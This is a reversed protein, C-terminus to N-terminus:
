NQTLYKKSFMESAEIEETTLSPQLANIQTLSEEHGLNFAAEYCAHAYGRNLEKGRGTEYARGLFDLSLRHKKKFALDELYSFALFYKKKNYLKLALDYNGFAVDFDKDEHMIMSYLWYGLVTPSIVMLVYMIGRFVLPEDSLQASTDTFFSWVIAITYVPVTVALIVKFLKPRQVIFGIMLWFLVLSFISSLIFVSASWVLNYNMFDDVLEVDQYILFTVGYIIIFALVASVFIALLLFPFLLFGWLVHWRIIKTKVKFFSPFM